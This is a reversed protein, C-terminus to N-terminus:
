SVIGAARKADHRRRWEEKPIDQVREWENQAAIAPNGYHKSAGYAETLLAVQNYEQMPDGAPRQYIRKVTSEVLACDVGEAQALEIAEEALRLARESPRVTGMGWMKVAWQMFDLARTM